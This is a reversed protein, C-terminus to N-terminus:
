QIISQSLGLGRGRKERQGCERAQRQEAEKKRLLAQHRRQAERMEDWEAALEPEQTRLKRMALEEIRPGHIGMGDKIERVNELRGQLRQLAAQQRQAQQQWKARTSPLSLIGPQKAQVQQLRTAQQEILLELRDEIREVQEHKAQVHAALVVSYQSELPFAEVLATQEAQAEQARDLLSDAETEARTASRQREIANQM